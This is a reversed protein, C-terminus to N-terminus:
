IMIGPRLTQHWVFVVTVPYGNKQSFDCFSSKIVGRGATPLDEIVPLRIKGKKPICNKPPTYLPDIGDSFNSWKKQSDSFTINSLTRSTM